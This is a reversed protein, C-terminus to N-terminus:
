KLRDELRDIRSELEEFKDALRDISDTLKEIVQFWRTRDDILLPRVISNIIYFIALGLVSTELLTPVVADVVPHHDYEVQAEYQIYQTDEM